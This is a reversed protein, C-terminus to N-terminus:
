REETRHGAYTMVGASARRMKVNPSEDFSVSCTMAAAAGDGGNRLMRGDDSVQRRRRQNDDDDGVRRRRYRVLAASDTICVCMNVHHACPLSETLTAVSEAATATSCM